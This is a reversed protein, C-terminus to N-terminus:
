QATFGGDAPLVVGTVFSAADSALFAVVHAIEEPRAFRGLPVGSRYAEDSSASFRDPYTAALQTIVEALM